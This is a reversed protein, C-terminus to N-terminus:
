WGLDASQRRVFQEAVGRMISFSLRHYVWPHAEWPPIHAHSVYERYLRDHLEETAHGFSEFTSFEFPSFDFGHSICSQAHKDSKGQEVSRLASTADQWGM